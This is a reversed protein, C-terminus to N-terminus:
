LARCPEIFNTLTDIAVKMSESQVTFELADSFDQDRDAMLLVLTEGEACTISAFRRHSEGTFFYYSIEGDASPVIRDPPRVNETALIRRVTRALVRVDESPPNELESWEPMATDEITPIDPFPLIKALIATNSELAVYRPSVTECPTCPANVWVFSASGATPLFSNPPFNPKSSEAFSLGKM